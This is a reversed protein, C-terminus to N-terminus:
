CSLHIFLSLSLSLSLSIPARFTYLIWMLHSYKISYTNLNYSNLLFVQFWLVYLGTPLLELICRSCRQLPPLVGERLLHRAYSILYDSPSAGTISSSQLVSLVGEIGNSGPGSQGLTTAGSLTRDIPWDFSNSM